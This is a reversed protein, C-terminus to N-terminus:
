RHCTSCSTRTHVDYKDKLALGLALQDGKPEWSMNTIEEKPRLFKEPARHCELCWGMTMPKAKEVAAMKDIRGHCTACGVGKAVHISHNFYA